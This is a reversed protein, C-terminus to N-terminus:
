LIHVLVMMAEIRHINCQHTFYSMNEYWGYITQMQLQESLTMCLYHYILRLCLLIIPDTSVITRSTCLMNTGMIFSEIKFRQTM